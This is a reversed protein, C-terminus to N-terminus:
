EEEKPLPKPSGPKTKIKAVASRVVVLMLVVSVPISAVLLALTIVPRTSFHNDLWLGGLVSALVIVLTVCGVQAAAVALVLNMTRQKKEEPAASPNNM